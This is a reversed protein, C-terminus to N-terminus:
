IEIKGSPDVCLKPDGSNQDIPFAYLEMKDKNLVRQLAKLWCLPTHVLTDKSTSGLWEEHAYEAMLRLQTNTLKM